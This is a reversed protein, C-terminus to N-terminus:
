PCGRRSYSSTPRKGMPAMLPSYVEKAFEYALMLVQAMHRYNLKLITTRGQAKIGVIKFGFQHSSRQGQRDADAPYPRPHPPKHPTSTPWGM